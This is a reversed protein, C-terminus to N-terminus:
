RLEPWDCGGAVAEWRRGSTTSSPPPANERYAKPTRRSPRQCNRRMRRRTRSSTLAGGPFNPPQTAGGAGRAQEYPSLNAPQTTTTTFHSASKPKGAPQQNKKLQGAYDRGGSPRIPCCFLQVVYYLVSLPSTTNGAVLKRVIEIEQHFPDCSIIHLTNYHSTYMHLTSSYYMIMCMTKEM